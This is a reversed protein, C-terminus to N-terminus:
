ENCNVGTLPGPSQVLGSTVTFGPLLLSPFPPRTPISCSKLSKNGEEGQSCRQKLGLLWGGLSLLSASTGGPQIATTPNRCLAPTPKRNPHRPFRYFCRVQCHSQPQAGWVPPIEM